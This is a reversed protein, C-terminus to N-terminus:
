TGEQELARGIAAELTRLGSLVDSGLHIRLARRGRESLVDFDGRAQAAAVTAFDLKRGPIDITGASATTIQLFVGSDPGGKYAQGTSHLFRPGFGLCTAVKKADRLRRRIRQLIAEHAPIMDVYALLALYDGSRLRSLHSGLRASLDPGTIAAANKDDTFLSVSDGEFIPSEAPLAGTQEFATTMEKTKKKSAEVDPQDFPNIGMVAGAVATALEWRFLEQPLADVDDLDIRLVPHGAEQLRLVAQDQGADPTSRLRLYVFLRDDGYRDPATLPEGDIPIIAKGAKGTSEAVLQELWAGFSAIAPSAILTLKDRGREAATGMVLGLAVAPHQLAPTGPRCGEAMLQAEDLLAAVDLGMMAAPVMGFHSLASFRGGIEPVGHHIARFDHERAFAELKSGPDTIAVFHGGAAPGLENQARDLFSEMFVTPELTTGSKSAVVFLTTEPDVEGHLRRVQEPVTSDLIKLVPWGRAATTGGYTRALVDPFLSSGGMGLLLVHSVGAERTDKAVDAFTELQQRQQEVIHLWGLWRDEDAGTWVSTDSQWLRKTKDAGDWTRAAEVVQQELEDPLHVISLDNRRAGRAKRQVAAVTRLLGDMADAFKVIGEELLQDTVDDISIDLEALAALQKQAQDLDATLTPAVKGHDVFASVTDPPATNVTDPGILEDVYLVDSYAPNKTGTSAWLLRQPRAGKAALTKWSNEQLLDEYIRYALKANAIAIKGMLADIRARSDADPAAALRKALRRDVESDIRSVFFSAVSAVHDIAEGRDARAQLGRVYARAIKDYADQAFILTVNVNIGEAILEEVAIIGEPTGPVKIMLNPRDVAAWLRRAETLTGQTDRALGPAVELSVFGDARGTRQYLPALVDCAERIDEIALAEYLGMADLDPKAALADLAEAYDDSGGIAKEFIAPNSTIGRVGQEILRALEGSRTMGRRIYDLWLSQGAQALAELKTM